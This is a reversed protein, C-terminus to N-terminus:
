SLMRRRSNVYKKFDELVRDQLCYEVALLITLGMSRMSVKRKLTPVISRAKRNLTTNSFNITWIRENQKKYDTIEDM